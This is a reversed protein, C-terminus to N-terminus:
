GPEPAAGRLVADNVRVKAGDRLTKLWATELESQRRSRLRGAVEDRQQPYLTPDPRVREKVQAIVPGATSAYVDPLIQGSSASSTAAVLAPVEGLGPVPGGASPTFPGSDRVVLPDGGFTPSAGKKGGASPIAPFLDALKKGGRLQALAERARRDAMKQAADTELIERAILPRVEALPVTRAEEVAEVQIAHWGFRTRVPASIEGPKLAFAADEFPKAMTGAGFFGLDGGKDKTGSDESAEQAVTAFPEGKKIREMLAEVRKRAAEDQAAPAGEPVKVLVHRARIRKKREWRAADAQYAKEIRAAGSKVFAAVEADTVKVERRAAALPFRVYLLDARDADALWAARIEDESVQTGERLLAMMKQYLLDDTLQEEFRPESGYAQRVTRRYLEIDFRGGTQFAPISWVVRNLEDPTVRLGRRGAEQIVLRRDVLQNMAVNRLGLQEALERTFTGGVRSQYTRVLQAYHQEYDAPTVVYGDVEVASNASLGTVQCGQSGPGFSVVFVIIIIGFLVYTLVSRSKSRLVDLM